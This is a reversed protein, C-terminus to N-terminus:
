CCHSCYRLSDLKNMWPGQFKGFIVMLVACVTLGLSIYIINEFGILPNLGAVFAFQIFNAIAFGTWYFGYINSGTSQGFIEQAVTPAM